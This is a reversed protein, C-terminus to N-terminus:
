CAKKPVERWTIIQFRPQTFLIEGGAAASYEKSPCTMKMIESRSIMFIIRGEFYLKTRLVM